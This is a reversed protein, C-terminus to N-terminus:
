PGEFTFPVSDSLGEVNFILIERGSKLRVRETEIRAPPELGNMAQVIERLTQDSVEQGVLTGDPKIGFLVKGGNSNLFACATQLGERLEGTSRKFELQPGEGQTVLRKLANLNM